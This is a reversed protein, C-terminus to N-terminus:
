VVEPEEKMNISNNLHASKFEVSTRVDIIVAGNEFMEKLYGAHSTNRFVSLSSFKM